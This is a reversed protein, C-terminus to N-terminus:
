ELNLITLANSQPLAVDGKTAAKNDYHGIVLYKGDPSLAMSGPRPNVNISRSITLDVTNMVEIRNATFNAIYLSHRPEDLVVDAANGGIPVVKGFTAAWGQAALIVALVGCSMARFAFRRTMSHAGAIERRVPGGGSRSAYDVDRGSSYDT